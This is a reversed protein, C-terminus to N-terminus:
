PEIRVELSSIGNGSFVVWSNRNFNSISYIKRPAFDNVYVNEDLINYDEDLVCYYFVHHIGDNSYFYLESIPNNIKLFVMGAHDWTVQTPDIKDARPFIQINANFSYFQPFEISSTDISDPLEVVYINDKVYNFDPYLNGTFLTDSGPIQAWPLVSSNIVAHDIHYKGRISNKINIPILPNFFRNCDRIRSKLDIPPTSHVIMSVIDVNAFAALHYSTYSDSIVVAQNPISQNFNQAFDSLGMPENYKNYSSIREKIDEPLFIATSLGLIILLAVFIKTWPLNVCYRRPFFKWILWTLPILLFFPETLRGILNLPVVRSIFKLLLPNFILLPVILINALTFLQGQGQRWESSKIILIISAIVSLYFPIKDATLSFIPYDEFLMTLPLETGPFTESYHRLCYLYIAILLPLGALFYGTTKAINRLFEGASVHNIFFDLLYFVILYGIIVLFYYIHFFATIFLITLLLFTKRNMDESFQVTLFSPMLFGTCIASPMVSSGLFAFRFRLFQFIIILITACVALNQNKFVANIFVYLAIVTLPLLVASLVIWVFNPQFKGLLAIAALFTHWANFDYLTGAPLGSFYANESVMKPQNLYNVAQAVHYWADGDQFSGKWYTIIITFIIFLVFLIKSKTWPQHQITITRRKLILYLGTITLAISIVLWCICITRLSIAFIFGITSLISWSFLGVISSFLIIRSLNLQKYFINMLTWGPIFVLVLMLSLLKLENVFM